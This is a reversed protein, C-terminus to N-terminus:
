QQKQWRFVDGKEEVWKNFESYKFKGNSVFTTAVRYAIVKGNKVILFQPISKNNYGRSIIEQYVKSHKPDDTQIVQLHNFSDSGVLWDLDKFHQEFGTNKVTKCPVCWSAGVYVIRNLELVIGDDEEDVVTIIEKPLEKKSFVIKKPKVGAIQDKEEIHMLGHLWELQQYTLCKLTSDPYNRFGDQKDHWQVHRFLFSPPDTYAKQGGSSIHENIQNITENYTYLLNEAKLPVYKPEEEEVKIELPLEPELKEDVSVVPQENSTLQVSEIPMTQTPKSGTFLSAAVLLISVIVKKM